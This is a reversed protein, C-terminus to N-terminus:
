AHLIHMGKDDRDDDHRTDGRPSEDVLCAGERRPSPSVAAARVDALLMALKRTHTEEEREKARVGGKDGLAGTQLAPTRFPNGSAYGSGYNDLSPFKSLATHSGSTSQSSGAQATAILSFGRSPKAPSQTPATSKTVSHGARVHPARLRSTRVFPISSINTRAQIKLPSRATVGHPEDLNSLPYPSLFGNMRPAKRRPTTPSPIEQRESIQKVLRSSSVELPSARVRTTETSPTRRYAIMTTNPHNFDGAHVPHTSSLSSLQTKSPLTVRSEEYKPSSAQPLFRLNAVSVLTLSLM